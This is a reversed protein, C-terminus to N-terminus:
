YPVAECIIDNREEAARKAGISTGLRDAPTAHDIV